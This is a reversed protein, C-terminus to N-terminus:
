EASGARKPVYVSLGATVSVADSPNNKAYLTGLASASFVVHDSSRLLLKLGPRVNMVRLSGFRDPDALDVESVDVGFPRWFMGISGAFSVIRNVGLVLEADGTFEAGPVPEDSLTTNPFRYVGGLEVFGSWAGTRGAPGTRGIAAFGGIDSTGEGQNTIRARTKSTHSGQRFQAGLALSVASDYFEDLALAQARVDIVGIGRTRECASLGFSTCVPGDTRNAHVESWPVGLAIQVRPVIGYSVDAQVGFTSIGSDVPQKDDSFSGGDGALTGFRQYSTALYVSTDGPSLVWPGSAAHALSALLALLM